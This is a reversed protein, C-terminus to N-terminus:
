VLRQSGCPDLIPVPLSLGREALLVQSLAILPEENPQVGQWERSPPIRRRTVHPPRFGSCTM